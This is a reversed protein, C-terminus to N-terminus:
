KQHRYPFLWLGIGYLLRDIAFALLTIVLLSLYIHGHLGRRQSIFILAGIGGSELSIAEALIIYGFGLGFLLRMSNFIDPLALPVLVKTIIQARTAGLTHATDVYKQDVDFISQTADFIVFAVCAIFIFAVKGTEGLGFWVMVLPVLAAIPVNRGFITVPALFSAFRPFCGGLIGLPVGIAVALGFGQLVRWLSIMAERTLAREFWLSPLSGFVERPSPLIAPPIARLEVAGRTALWWALGILGICSLSWFIRSLLKPQQRLKSLAM